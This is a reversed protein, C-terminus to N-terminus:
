LPKAATVELGSLASLVVAEATEIGRTIGCSGGGDDEAAYLRGWGKKRSLLPPAILFLHQSYARQLFFFRSDDSRKASLNGEGQGRRGKRQCSRGGRNGPLPLVPDKIPELGM